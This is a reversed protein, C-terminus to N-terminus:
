GGSGEQQALFENIVDAKLTATIGYGLDAALSKIQAITM